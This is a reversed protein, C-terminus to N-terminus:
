IKECGILFWYCALMSVVGLIFLSPLWLLLNM